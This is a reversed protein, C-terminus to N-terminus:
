SFCKYSQIACIGRPDIIEGEVPEVKVTRVRAMFQQFTITEGEMMFGDVFSIVPLFWIFYWV